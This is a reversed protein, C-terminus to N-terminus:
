ITPLKPAKSKRQIRFFPGCEAFRKNKHQRQEMSIIDNIIQEEAKTNKMTKPTSQTLDYILSVISTTPVVPWVISTTPV